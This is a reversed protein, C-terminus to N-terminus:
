PRKERLKRVNTSAAAADASLQAAARAAAEDVSLRRVGVNTPMGHYKEYFWARRSENDLATWLQPRNRSRRGPLYAVAADGFAVVDRSWTPEDRREAMIQICRGAAYLEYRLWRLYLNTNM